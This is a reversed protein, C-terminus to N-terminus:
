VLFDNIVSFIIEDTDIESKKELNNSSNSKERAASMNAAPKIEESSAAAQASSAKQSLLRHNLTNDLYDTIINATQELKSNTNILQCFLLYIISFLLSLLAYKYYKDSYVLTGYATLILGIISFARGFKEFADYHLGAYTYNAIYKKVFAPTNCIHIDLKACNTFRLLIQKLLKHQISQMNQCAAYLRTQWIFGVLEMLM